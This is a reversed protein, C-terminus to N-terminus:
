KIKMRSIDVSETVRQETEGVRVHKGGGGEFSVLNWAWGALAGHKKHKHGLCLAVHTTTSFPLSCLQVTSLILSLTFDLHSAETFLSSYNSM